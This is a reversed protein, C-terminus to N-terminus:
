LVPAIMRFISNRLQKWLQLEHVDSYTIQRCKAIDRNFQAILEQVIEPNYFFANVEYDLV